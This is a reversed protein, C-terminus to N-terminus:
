ETAGTTEECACVNAEAVEEDPEDEVKPGFVANVIPFLFYGNWNLVGFQLAHSEENCWNFLGVQIGDHRGGLNMGAVRVGFYDGNYDIASASIGWGKESVNIASVSLGGNSRSSNLGAVTALFIRDNDWWVPAIRFISYSEELPMIQAGVGIQAIKTDLPIAIRDVWVTCGCAMLLLSLAFLCRNM